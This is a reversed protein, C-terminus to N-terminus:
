KYIRFDTIKILEIGLKINLADNSLLLPLAKTFNTNLKIDNYNSLYKIDKESIKNIDIMIISMSKENQEIIIYM